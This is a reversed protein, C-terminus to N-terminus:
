AIRGVAVDRAGRRGDRSTRTRRRQGRWRRAHRFDGCGAQARRLDAKALYGTVATEDDPHAVVVLIDAKFREDPPVPKIAQGFAAPVSLAFIGLTSLPILRM